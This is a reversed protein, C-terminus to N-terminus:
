PHQLSPWPASGISGGNQGQPKGGGRGRRHGNNNGSGSNGHSGGGSGGSDPGRTTPTGYTVGGHSYVGNGSNGTALFVLNTSSDPASTLEELMLASRTELFSPFLTKMSLLTRMHAFKPNLGRLTNLVITKDSLDDALSKQKRCCNAISLSGQALIRFEQELYLARTEANRAMRLLLSRFIIMLLMSAFLSRLYVAGGRTIGAHLDLTIPVLTKISAM